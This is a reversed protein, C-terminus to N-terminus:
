CCPVCPVGGCCCNACLLMTCLNDCCSASSPGGTRYTQQTYQRTQGMISELANRYEANGPDMDVAQQIHSRAQAYWGRRLYVVGRLFYWEANHVQMGELLQEAMMINGSDIMQRIYLFSHPDSGTPRGGYQNYGGSFPNYGGYPNYGGAGQGQGAGGRKILIDYAQNIEQMKKEAQDKLPSDVYRDPHYKKALTRYAQKIEEETADPSVGLVKYPDQM